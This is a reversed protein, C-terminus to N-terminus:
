GMNLDQDVKAIFLVVAGCRYLKYIRRSIGCVSAHSVRRCYAVSAPAMTMKDENGNWRGLEFISSLIDVVGKILFIELPGSATPVPSDRCVGAAVFNYFGTSIELNIDIGM